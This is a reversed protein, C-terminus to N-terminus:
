GTSPKAVNHRPLPPPLKQSAQARHQRRALQWRGFRARVHRVGVLLSIFLFHIGFFWGIIQLSDLWPLHAISSLLLLWISVIVASCLSMRLWLPWAQLRALPALLRPRARTRPIDALVLWEYIKAAPAFATGAVFVWVIFAILVKFGLVLFIPNIRGDQIAKLRSAGVALPASLTRYLLSRSRISRLLLTQRDKDTPDMILAQRFFQEANRPRELEDLYIEGISTMMGANQPDLALAEELRRIRDWADSASKQGIADLQIELHAAAAWNPALARAQRLHSRANAIQDCRLEYIGALYHYTASHPELRLLTNIHPGAKRHQKTDLFYIAALHHHRADDPDVSLLFSVHQRLKASRSTKAYAWAIQRHTEPDNPDIALSDSAIEILRDWHGAESLQELWEAPPKSRDTASMTSRPYVGHEHFLNFSRNGIRERGELRPM